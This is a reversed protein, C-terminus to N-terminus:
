RTPTKTKATVKVTRDLRPSVGRMLTPLNRPRTTEITGDQLTAAEVAVAAEGVGHLTTL